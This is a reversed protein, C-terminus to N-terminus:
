VTHLDGVTADGRYSLKIPKGAPLDVKLNGKASLTGRMVAVNVKDAFYPQFPTIEITKADVGVTAQLPDLGATGSLKVSGRKNIKAGLAFKAQQGKQTSFNEVTGALAAVNLKAPEALSRDEFSLDHGATTIKKVSVVWPKEDPSSPVAKKAVSPGAAPIMKAANLVGDKLRVVRLKADRLSVDDITASRAALDVNGGTVEAAAIRYFEEKEDGQRLAFDALKVALAQLVLKPTGEEGLAFDYDTAVGLTGSSLKVLLKGAIFPEYRPLKLDAVELHGKAALPTLTLTGTHKVVEDAATRVDATVTALQGAGNGLGKVLVNAAAVDTAFTPTVTADSVHVKGEALKFEGVSWAFPTVEKAPKAPVPSVAEGAPPKPAAGPAAEPALFGLQRISGDKERTLWVEPGQVSVAALAAKGAFVQASQVKVALKPLKLIPAGEKEVVELQNLGIDGAVVLTPAGTAPQSFTVSLRTDLTGSPIGFKLPVPSYAVFAPLQLADLDLKVSAERTEKFPKAEGGLQLTSGDVKASFAPQVEIDVQTPLNSIFPVGIQIDSVTHKAKVVRDDLDIHGGTLQINNLSFHTPESAPKNLFEEILDTFNYTKDANRVIHLYPNA